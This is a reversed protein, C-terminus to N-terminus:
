TCCKETKQVTRLVMRRCADLVGYKTVLWALRQDTFYQQLYWQMMDSIYQAWKEVMLTKVYAREQAIRNQVAQICEKRIEIEATSLWSMTWVLTVEDCLRLYAHPMFGQSNEGEPNFVNADWWYLKFTELIHQSSWWKTSEWIERIKERREVPQVDLQVDAMECSELGLAECVEPDGDLKTMWVMILHDTVYPSQAQYNPWQTYWTCQEEWIMGLECCGRKLLTDAIALDNESFVRLSTIHKWFDPKSWTKINQITAQARVPPSLGDGNCSHRDDVAFVPVSCLVAFIILIGYNSLRM